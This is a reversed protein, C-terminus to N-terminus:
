FGDWCDSLRTRMHLDKGIRASNLHWEPVITNTTGGARSRYYACTGFLCASNVTM